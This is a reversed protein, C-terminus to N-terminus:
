IASEKYFREKLWVNEASWLERDVNNGWNGLLHSLKIVSGGM